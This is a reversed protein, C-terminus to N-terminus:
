IYEYTRISNRFFYIRVLHFVRTSGSARIRVPQAFVRAGLLGLEVRNEAKNALGIVGHPWSLEEHAM